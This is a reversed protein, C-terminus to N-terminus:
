TSRRQTTLREIDAAIELLTRSVNSDTIEALRTLVYLKRTSQDIAHPPRRLRATLEDIENEIALDASIPPKEEPQNQIAAAGPGAGDSDTEDADRVWSWLSGSTGSREGKKILGLKSLRSLSRSIQQIDEIAECIEQEYIDARYMGPRGPFHAAKLASLVIRDTRNREILIRERKEYRRRRPMQQHGKRRQCRYHPFKIINVNSAWNISKMYKARWEAIRKVNRLAEEGIRQEELDRHKAESLLDNKIM